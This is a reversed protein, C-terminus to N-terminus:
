VELVSVVLRDLGALLRDGTGPTHVIHETVGHMASYLILATTEPDAPPSDLSALFEAFTDVVTNPTDREGRTSPHFLVDHLRVDRLYETVGARMWARVGAVGGEVRAASLQVEAFRRVYRDRLADLLDGKSTFHLYFTGKAVGAGTTVDEVTFREAGQNQVLEEAADLLDTRREDSPKTRPATSKM